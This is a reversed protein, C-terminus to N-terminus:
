CSPSRGWPASCEFHVPMHHPRHPHARDGHDRRAPRATRADTVMADGLLWRRAVAQWRTCGASNSTTIELFNDTIENSKLKFGPCQFIFIKMM